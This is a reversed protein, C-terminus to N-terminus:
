WSSLDDVERAADVGEMGYDMWWSQGRVNLLAPDIRTDSMDQNNRNYHYGSWEIAPQQNVTLLPYGDELQPSNDFPRSVGLTSGQTYGQDNVNQSFASTGSYAASDLEASRDALNEPVEPSGPSPNPHSPSPLVSKASCGCLESVPLCLAEPLGRPAPSPSESYPKSGLRVAWLVLLESDPVHRTELMKRLVISTHPQWKLDKGKPHRNKWGDYIGAQRMLNRFCTSHSWAQNHRNAEVHNAVHHFYDTATEAPDAADPTEFVHKCNTFGCAFVVRPCLITTTCESSRHLNGHSPEKLHAKMGPLCDYTKGCGRKPCAWQANTNHYNRMHRKLDNKRRCATYAGVESCLPCQLHDDKSAVTAPSSARPRGTTAGLSRRGTRRQHSVPPPKLRTASSINDNEAITTAPSLRSSPRQVDELEPVVALGKGHFNLYGGPSIYPSPFDSNPFLLQELNISTSQMAM